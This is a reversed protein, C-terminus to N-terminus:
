AIRRWVDVIISKQINNHPQSGGTYGISDTDSLAPNDSPRDNLDPTRGGGSTGSADGLSHRHKPMENITLTHNDEGGTNGITKMWKPSQDNEQLARSVLAHGDGHKEWQGYGKHEAVLAASKFLTNTIFLDGVAIDHRRIMLEKFKNLQELVWERNATVINSDIQVLVQAGSAAKIETVIELEGGAGESIIPKYAGHFNAIYVLQGTADVFGYEHMNFGGINAEITASVRAIQGLIEVSQIPVRACENVLSTRSKQDIPEYPQNNADGIVMETLQISVVNHAQAILSSGYETLAVYYKAAM